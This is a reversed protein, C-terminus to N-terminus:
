GHNVVPCYFNGREEAFPGRLPREITQFGNHTWVRALSQTMMRCEIAGRNFDCHGERLARVCVVVSLVGVGWGCGGVVVSLVGVGKECGGVVVSLM